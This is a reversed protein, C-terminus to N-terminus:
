GYYKNIINREKIDRALQRKQHRLAKYRIKGQTWFIAAPKQQNWEFRAVYGQSHKNKHYVKEGTRHYYDYDFVANFTKVKKIGITGLNNPLKVYYGTEKIFDMVNALFTDLVNLYEKADIDKLPNEKYLRYLTSKIYFKSMLHKLDQM